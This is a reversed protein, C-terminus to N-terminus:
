VTYTYTVGEGNVTADLYIDTLDKLGDELRTMKMSDGANLPTGRRGAGSAAVVTSGGVVITGTNTAKATMLVSIAPTSSATLRERTGATTVLKLGDLPVTSSSSGSGVIEVPMANPNTTSSRVQRTESGTSDQIILAPVHNQDKLARQDAMREGFLFSGRKPVREEASM